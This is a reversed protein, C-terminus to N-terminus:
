TTRAATIWPQECLSFGHHRMANKEKNYFFLASENFRGEM